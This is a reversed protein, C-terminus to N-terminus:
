TRYNNFPVNAGKKPVGRLLDNSILKLGKEIIFPRTKLTFLYATCSPGPMLTEKKRLPTMKVTAPAM